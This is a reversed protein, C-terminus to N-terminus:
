KTIIVTTTVTTTTTVFVTTPVIITTPPVTVTPASSIADTLKNSPLLVKTVTDFVYIRDSQLGHIYVVGNESSLPSSVTIKSPTNDKDDDRLNKLLLQTKSGTADLSYIKADHTAVIVKGDVVVPSSPIETGLDFVTVLSGDQTSVAYVKGDMCPAYLMGNSVVPTAWFWDQPTDSAQGLAPFQWKVSGTAEDLAYIKRDFSAVYVIGNDIVPTALIAGQTTFSWKQKGTAADVAYVKKDFSGAFVTGNDVAPTSWIKNGTAFKWIQALTTADLAYLNGNSSAVYVKGQDVAPGGVIPKPDDQDLQVNSSESQKSISYSYVKGNYGAVYVVDGSVAPTGYVAVATSPASCGLFGGSSAVGEVAATWNPKKTLDALSLAVLQGQSSVTYASDGSVTVGAWGAAAVASGCGALPVLVALLALTLAIATVLVKKKL